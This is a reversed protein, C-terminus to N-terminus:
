GNRGASQSFAYQRHPDFARMPKKIPTVNHFARASIFLPRARLAWGIKLECTRLGETKKDSPKYRLNFGTL